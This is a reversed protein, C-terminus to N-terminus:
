IKLKSGSAFKMICFFSQGDLQKKLVLLECLGRQYERMRM